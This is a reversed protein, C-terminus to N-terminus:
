FTPFIWWLPLSQLPTFLCLTHQPFVSINPSHSGSSLSHNVTTLVHIIKYGSAFLLPHSDMYVHSPKSFTGMQLYKYTFCSTALLFLLFPFSNFAQLFFPKFYNGHELSHPFLNPLSVDPNSLLGPPGASAEQKAKHHYGGRVPAIKGPTPKKGHPLM